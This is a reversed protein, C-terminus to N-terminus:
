TYLIRLNVHLSLVKEELLSIVWWNRLTKLKIKFVVRMIFVNKLWAYFVCCDDM